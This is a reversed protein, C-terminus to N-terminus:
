VKNYEMEKTTDIILKNVEPNSVWGERKEFDSILKDRGNIASPNEKEFRKIALLRTLAKKKDGTLPIGGTETEVYTGIDKPDIRLIAERSMDKLDSQTEYTHKKGVARRFYSKYSM